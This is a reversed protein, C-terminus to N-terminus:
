GMIGKIFLAVTPPTGFIIALWLAIRGTKPDNDDLRAFFRIVLCTVCIFAMLGLAYPQTFNNEM